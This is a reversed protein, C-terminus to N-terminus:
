RCVGGPADINYDDMVQVWGDQGLPLQARVHKFM